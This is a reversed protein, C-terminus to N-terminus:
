TKGGLRPASSAPKAASQPNYHRAIYNLADALPLPPSFYFGQAYECGIDKLIRADDDSEVGEVVVDRRLDHALAIISSLVVGGDSESHTGGHRALFSKDIKVTDFPIDKLQSLSSQGTGFDDIALGAGLARIRRLISNANAAAASETVELKLTGPVIGCEELVRRLFSDFGPDRLQRRSLNVSVFLPPELPFFQQLQSLDHCAQEIAFRGLMVILGTEECHAIFEDPSILGKSPHRWRILAEFGAVATDALRVIPQYFIELQNQELADRLDAELAVSDAPEQVNMSRAYVRVCGGGDQKAQILALEANKVLGLADRADHGVSVGISAPAVVSREGVLYAGACTEAVEAGITAAAASAHRFLIAFADGGVRFVEGEDGFRARLRDGIGVLLADGGSDGLSAHIAKFRDIDLFVITSDLFGDGIQEFAIMLAARNGLGTLSDVPARDAVGIESDKRATIDAILGLCRSARKESGLMTARLELWVYRGCEKRARFEIRFALGVQTRYDSLARQYVARDEDHLRALWAGQSMRGSAESLGLLRAADRSILVEDSDFELDFIGQHAAGIAKLALPHSDEPSKRSAPLIVIGEGAVVALALLVAGAAAFGGAIDPAITTEGLMGVTSLTAALAVLAFIAASPAVDRAPRSGHRGRFVLYAAIAATGVVVCTYTIAIAGPVGLYAFVAIGAVALVAWHLWRSKGPWMTEIPVLIDALRAGAALSLGAFFATLGYPGGVHTALSSDFMGTGALRTLLILALTIAAWLPAQHGSMVALGGAIAAAAFILGAIAAVFIGLQRNHAALAAETWALLSPPSQANSIEIAFAASTAPPITIQWAHGGFGRAREIMVGPESSAVSVIAPRTSRPAIRLAASAPQGAVLVRTIARSLKNDATFTYWATQGHRVSAPMEYPGLTDRLETVVDHDGFGITHKDNASAAPEATAAFGAFSLALLAAAFAFRIM